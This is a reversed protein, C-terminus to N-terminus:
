SDFWGYSAHLYQSILFTSNARRYLYFYLLATAAGTRNFLLRLRLPKAPTARRM